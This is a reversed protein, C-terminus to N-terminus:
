TVVPTAANRQCLQALAAWFLAPALSERRTRPRTSIWQTGGGDGPLAMPVGWYRIRRRPLQM